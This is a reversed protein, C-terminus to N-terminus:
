HQGNEQRWEELLKKEERHMLRIFLYIPTVVMFGFLVVYTATLWRIDTWEVLAGGVISAAIICLIWFWYWRNFRKGSVARNRAVAKVDRESLQM